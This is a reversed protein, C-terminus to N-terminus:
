LRFRICGLCPVKHPSPHSVVYFISIWTNAAPNYEWCDRYYVNSGTNYGTAIYGKDSISFGAASMRAAGGFDAKQAWSNALPDYEWFDKKEIGDMGTGVFGKNGISFSVAGYRATGGFNAKQVWSNPTTHVPDTTSGTVKLGCNEIWNSGDYINICQNDTNFIQLGTAPSVIANRQETSMRPMLFGKSTSNVDLMASSAPSVTGIGVNQAYSAYCAVTITVLLLYRM